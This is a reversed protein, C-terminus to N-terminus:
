SFVNKEHLYLMKKTCARCVCKKGKSKLIQDAIAKDERKKKFFPISFLRYKM